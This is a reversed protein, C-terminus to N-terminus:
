SKTRMRWQEREQAEASLQREIILAGNRAEPPVAVVEASPDRPGDRLAPEPSM